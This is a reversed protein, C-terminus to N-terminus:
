KAKIRFTPLLMPVAQQYDTYRQGFERLLKREEFQIGILIYLTALLGFLLHTSTLNPTVWLALLSATYIPHRVWAYLGDSVFQAQGEANQPAFGSFQAAGTQRVAQLLLLCALGQVVLACIRLWQPANFLLVGPVSKYFYFVPLFTVVAFINYSLRYWRQVWVKGFYQALLTKSAQSATISHLAGWVAFALMMAYHGPLFVTM